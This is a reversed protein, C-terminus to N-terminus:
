WFAKQVHFDNLNFSSYFFPSAMTAHLRSLGIKRIPVFSAVVAFHQFTLMEHCSTLGSDMDEM